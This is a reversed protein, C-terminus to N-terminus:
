GLNGCGLYVNTDFHTFLAEVYIKVRNTQRLAHYIVFNDQLLQNTKEALMSCLQDDKFGRATIVPMGVPMQM